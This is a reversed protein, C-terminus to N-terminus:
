LQYNIKNSTKMCKYVHSMITSGIRYIGFNMLGRNKKYLQAFDGNQQNLYEKEWIKIGKNVLKRIQNTIIKNKCNVHCM